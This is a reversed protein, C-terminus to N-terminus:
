IIQLYCIKVEQKGIQQGKDQKLQRIARILVIILINFLYLSLQCDKGTGSKLSITKVKARNLNIIDIARSYVTKIIYLNAGQIERTELVEMMFPTQIKDCAKEEDLSIDMHNEDKQKNIPYIVQRSKVQMFQVIEADKIMIIMTIYEQILNAFIKHKFKPYTYM